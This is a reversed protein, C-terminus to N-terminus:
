DLDTCVPFGDWLLEDMPGESIACNALCGSPLVFTVFASFIKITYDLTGAHEQVVNKAKSNTRLAVIKAHHHYKQDLPFLLHWRAVTTWQLSATFNGFVELWEMNNRPGEVWVVMWLAHHRWVLGCSRTCYSGLRATTLAKGHNEQVNWAYNPLPSLRCSGQSRLLVFCLNSVAWLFAFRTSYHYISLCVLIFLSPVYYLFIAANPLLTQRLQNSMTLTLLMKSAFTLLTAEHLFIFLGCPRRSVACVASVHPKQM